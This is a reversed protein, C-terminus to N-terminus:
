QEEGGQLLTEIHHRRDLLREYDARDEATWPGAKPDLLLRQHHHIDRIIDDHERVLGARIQGHHHEAIRLAGEVRALNRRVNERHTATPDDSTQSTPRASM